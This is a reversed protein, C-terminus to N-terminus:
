GRFRSFRTDPRNIKKENELTQGDEIPTLRVRQEYLNFWM